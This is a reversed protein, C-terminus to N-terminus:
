GLVEVQRSHWGSAGDPAPRAVESTQTVGERDTARVTLVHEGPDAEWRYRWQVWTNESVADGLECEHWGGEDVRVEVKAIGRTPAWAVGGIAVPGVALNAGAEPVDIRSMTKVPGEKAWGLPIWYGDVDDWGTVEIRSLWKTASVYGYLGAVVLRAPFGHRVPLPEGNMAYAVMAVRGDTAVDMPFGATFGDMSRGVVQGAGGRAEPRVGARDLLDTLAVGQWVANGVLRGGIQNSVCALTVTEEISPMALLDDYTLEFPTDVLGRVELRWDDLTTQPFSLATDIRYFDDNPTVYPTVEDLTFPASVEPATSGPPPLVVQERAIESAGRGGLRRGMAGMVAAAVGLGAVTALFARRAMAGIEMSSRPAPAIHGDAWVGDDVPARRDPASTAARMPTAAVVEAQWLAWRLAAIGSGAAVASAVLGIGDRGLEDARYAVFGLVAFAVFGGAGIVFRERAALGLGAGFALATIVIGIVLALKHNTGFLDVAFDKISAGFLDIFQSGVASVLSPDDRGIVGVVLEGAGLAVAAAVLGAVAARWSAAQALPEVSPGTVVGAQGVGHRITRDPERPHAALPM